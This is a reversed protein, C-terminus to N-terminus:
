HEKKDIALAHLRGGYTYRDGFPDKDASSTRHFLMVNVNMYTCAEGLASPSSRCSSRQGATGAPKLVVAVGKKPGEIADDRM